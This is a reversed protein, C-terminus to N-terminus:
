GEVAHRVIEGQEVRDGATLTLSGDNVMVSWKNDRALLKAIRELFGPAFSYIEIEGARHVKAAAMEKLILGADKYTYVKVAEAAKAAKHLKRASPNGIEIWLEVGGAMGSRSLAPTESDSLGGTAFELPMVADPAYNLAYALARTLLYPLAESPHQGVRYDMSEYVGRDVDSFELRFRYLTVPANM